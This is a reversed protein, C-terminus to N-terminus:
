VYRSDTIILVASINKLTILTNYCFMAGAKKIWGSVLFSDLECGWVRYDINSETFCM